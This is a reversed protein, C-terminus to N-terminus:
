TVQLSHERTTLWYVQLGDSPLLGNSLLLRSSEAWWLLATCLWRCRATHSRCQQNNVTSISSSNRVSGRQRKTGNDNRWNSTKDVVFSYSPLISRVAFPAFRGPFSVDQPRLPRFKLPAFRGSVMNITSSSNAKSEVVIRSM